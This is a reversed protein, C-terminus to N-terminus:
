RWRIHIFSYQKNTEIIFLPLKLKLQFNLFPNFVGSKYLHTVIPFVCKLPISGFFSIIIPIEIYSGIIEIHLAWFERSTDRIFHHILVGHIKKRWIRKIHLNNTFITTSVFSLTIQRREQSSSIM